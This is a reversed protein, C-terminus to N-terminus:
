KENKKDGILPNYVMIADNKTVFETKLVKGNRDKINRYIENHRTYFGLVHQKIKHKKEIIEYDYSVIKDSLLEGQLYLSDQWILLQFSQQTPNYIQLDIYNYSLTAGSGFPQTRKVDPFVDYGHRWRETIELPSHLAIWYILNGLQCLGGGIGKQLTGNHLVLGELYGKKKTTKGVLKWFSFTENPKILIKNIKESAIRLNTKKNEQLYMDVSKLKRMLISKHTFIKNKLKESSIFKSLKKNSFYWQFYRKYKFFIKGFFLRLWSRKKM